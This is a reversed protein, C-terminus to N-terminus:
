KKMKSVSRLSRAYGVLVTFLVAGSTASRFFLSDNRPVCTFVVVKRRGTFSAKLNLPCSSRHLWKAEHFWCSAIGLLGERPLWVQMATMVRPSIM